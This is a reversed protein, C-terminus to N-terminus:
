AQVVPLSAAAVAQGHRRNKEDPIAFEVNYEPFQTRIVRGAEELIIDGGKGSTVRGLILLKDIAPYIIKLKRMLKMPQPQIITMLVQKGSANLDKIATEMAYLGSQDM